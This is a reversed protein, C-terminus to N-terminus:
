MRHISSETNYRVIRIWVHIHLDYHFRYGGFIALKLKFWVGVVLHTFRSFKWLVCKNRYLVCVVHIYRSPTDWYISKRLEQRWAQCLIIISAILTIYNVFSQLFFYCYYYCHFLMSKEKFRIKLLLWLLSFWWRLDMSQVNLIWSHKNSNFREKTWCFTEIKSEGIDKSAVGKGWGCRVEHVVM